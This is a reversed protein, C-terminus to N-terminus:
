KRTDSNLKCRLVDFFNIGQLRVIPVTFESSKIVIEDDTKLEVAKQGDVTLMVQQNTTGVKVKVKSDSSVVVSRSHLSHPCIPSIVMSSVNPAIIPGGASLSYGTSGTPTSVIVGDGPYTQLFVDDVYTHFNVIRALPGKAITVENLARTQEVAKGNRVVQTYAMLRNEVKFKGSDIKEIAMELDKVEVETLFGLSGLNVGLMPICKSAYKRAINLFTGDGGLVLILEIFDPLSRPCFSKTNVVPTQLSSYLFYGKQNLKKVITSAVNFAKAKSPNM